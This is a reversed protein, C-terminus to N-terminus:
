SGYILEYGMEMVRGSLGYKMEYKWEQGFEWKCCRSLVQGVFKM